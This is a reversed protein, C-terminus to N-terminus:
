NSGEHSFIRLKFNTEVKRATSKKRQKKHRKERKLTKEWLNEICGRGASLLQKFCLAPSLTMKLQGRLECCSGAFAGKKRQLMARSHSPSILSPFPCHMTFNIIFCLVVLRSSFWALGTWEQDSQYPLVLAVLQCFFLSEPDPGLGWNQKGRCCAPGSCSTMVGWTNSSYSLKTNGELQVTSFHQQIVALYEDQDYSSTYKTSIHVTVSVSRKFSLWIGGM